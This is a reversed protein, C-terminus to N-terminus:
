DQYYQNLFVILEGGGEDIFMIPLYEHQLNVVVWLATKQEPLLIRVHVLRELSIVWITFHPLSKLLTVLETEQM